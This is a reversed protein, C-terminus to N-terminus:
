RRYRDMLWIVVAVAIGAFTGIQAGRLANGTAMGAVFGILIAAGLFCGGARKDPPNM